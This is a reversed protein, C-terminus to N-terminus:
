RKLLKRADAVTFLSGTILVGVGSQPGDIDSEALAVATEIADPLDPEVSVREPGFVEEAVAALAAVPMARPSSSRTVVVADAVPELQELLGAADKDALVAVVAVLRHFTFEEVLARATAAM